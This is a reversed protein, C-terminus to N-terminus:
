GATVNCTAFINPPIQSEVLQIVSDFDQWELTEVPLGEHLVRAFQKKAGSKQQWVEIILESGLAPWRLPNIKGLGLGSALRIMSGDHGVTLHYKVDSKGSQFNRLSMALEQFYVGFTLQNYTTANEAANWIYNYEWDGIAFVHAADAEDVCAGTTTNCPLPHNHCTRSTFTDFFHDYWVSWDSLGATGLMGDLRNKLTQNSQLHDLWAPVSQFANRVNDATPCSYSPTVDDITSPQTHVPFTKGVVKPDMGVLMGSAVEFTRTSTSTRVFFDKTNVSSLFKLKGNYVSWFDSGHKTADEFGERTLQGEDCTGNWMLSIFPHWPPTFTTHFVAAGGPGGHAFEQFDTCNWAQTNISNEKPYLNDPTRKHHRMLMNVYKLEVDSEPPMVYHAANVHPANCYNYTNWPFNAPTQSSNYVGLPTSLVTPFGTGNTAVQPVSDTDQSLSIPTPEHGAALVLLTGDYALGKLLGSVDSTPACLMIVKAGGLKQLEEGHDVKSGDLYKFAGFKLSDEEKSPGSSLAVVKYGMKSAFQIGLHGVGGIGHVAVIDGSTIDTHRLVNSYESFVTVGACLLPGAVEAPMGEPIRCISERRVTVYEAYGGDSTIGHSLRLKCGIYKGARCQPCDFCQGAHWAGGAKQGIQYETEGPGVAVIEGAFEHGPIRPLPIPWPQARPIEDGGCVGCAQVKIVVQGEKPDTWPLSLKKLEGNKETFAYGTFSAPHAM